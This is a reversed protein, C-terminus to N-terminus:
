IGFGACNVLVDVRGTEALVQDMADQVAPEDTVDASLHTVGARAFDRRSIEFVRCGAAALAKAAELGIGSSGGTVVAIRQEM